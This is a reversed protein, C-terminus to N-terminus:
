RLSGSVPAPLGLFGARALSGASGSPACCWGTGALRLGLCFVPLLSPPPGSSSVQPMPTGSVLIGHNGDVFDEMVKTVQELEQTKKFNTNCTGDAKQLVFISPGNDCSEKGHGVGVLGLCKRPGGAQRWM